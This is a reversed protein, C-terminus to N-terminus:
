SKNLLKQMEKVLALMRKGDETKLWKKRDALLNLKNEHGISSIMIKWNPWNRIDRVMERYCTQAHDAACIHKDKVAIVLGVRISACSKM